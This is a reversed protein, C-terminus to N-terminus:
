IDTGMIAASEITASWAKEQLFRSYENFDDRLKDADYHGSAAVCLVSGPKKWYVERWVSPHLILGTSPESLNITKREKGTDVTIDISGYPCFFLQWSQKHAHYGKQNDQESEFIMCLSSIRFPIDHEVEFFSLGTNKDEKQLVTRINIVEYDLSKRAPATYVSIGMQRCAVLLSEPVDISEPGCIYVKDIWEWCLFAAADERDVIVPINRIMGENTKDSLFVGRVAMGANEVVGLGENAFGATTVLLATSIANRNRNVKLVKKWGIHCLVILVYYLVYTLYVSVRSFAAGQKTSFLLLALLVFSILVHKASEIVEKKKRRRLVDKLSNFVITVVIDIVVTYVLVDAYDYFEFSLERLNLYIRTVTTTVIVLCVLDLLIFSIFQLRGRKLQEKM